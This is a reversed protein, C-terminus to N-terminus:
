KKLHASLLTAMKFMDVPQTTGFVQSLKADPIILRKNNTDQLQHTKIYDWVKKTMDGRTIESVEIIGRLEPSVQYVPMQRVKKPKDPTSKIKKTAKSANAKATKKTKEKTATKAAAKKGKKEYPTRPHNPYKNEVQELNNVIVDCEPFTSCSYFIKGFRSKRAVMHGPCEIAPCSPLDQQSLAEEGKKPINIIGKCEPYKTCGLFAGYRGHRIKMESSCNPCPQEWDFDTAYDEKNFTIEEVPSSYDCEPYRSCGFFYKSRAWVKQLKGIKCKPCDIETMVKPVFAEKLAIELTPNFQEWFDRILTKWDKMNEAVRELDDEMAATFGINMIKQFSTELMQAIIQGLETPKLRGNEKVTYDRSQIKNMIAAYTSPRGIGSKELEKVLSAETFRPPPRTFAQESTLEQLFLTQGEELKPLMRNEDDKEDDDNKEEYVALFGQFKIISGTARLLIGEGALIDASVTDYIAAVMQSALFRRWILQYLSFQEKTLYPQVKEPTNQLSAPRIAEHADQASKQTSYQKPDSPIFDSGYQKKIFERAEQVAEPSIRVSDTRMYTILGEPGDSGLDVGEYLGQAINMTRASSFGHHRSAEQQLTSTIFPPVPFRRKEKREVKKVQYPGPKMRKLIADAAEKNNVITIEKGEIPEKEFRKGDVSYLAARFLRDEQDNKLIAGINWYEIPKFAEIEKERDVVLKLAVSQVRGASLFNERGRQIRRNLLPSIKYGVIRDLLRRAQQANVLAIDIERPNELAKVVADKTISNFSVRKINTNPPLVQTIHWAIAEGERDPDPSLYVVDCQKAAKLLKSIVEEKNPMITYKPEFDNEIDIGFEREPLDRVHGISSEFIFNTGLFKKLTKIKAPSEVIILAKGM